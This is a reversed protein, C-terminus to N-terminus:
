RRFVKLTMTEPDRKDNGGRFLPPSEDKWGAKLLLECCHAPVPYDGDDFIFVRVSPSQMVLKTFRLQEARHDGDYFIIDHPLERVLTQSDVIRVEVEVKEAKCAYTELNDLFIDPSSEGVSGDAQHNDVTTFRVWGCGSAELAELIGCTSLGHYHGVELIDSYPWTEDEIVKMLLALESESLLGGQPGWVAEGLARIEKATRM